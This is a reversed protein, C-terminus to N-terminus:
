QFKTSHKQVWEVINMVSKIHGPNAEQISVLLMHGNALPVTVRILKEYVALAYKVKGIKSSLEDRFRWNELARKISKKTDEITLLHTVNNRRSNWLIKGKEDCILAFRAKPIGEMVMSVLKGEDDMMEVNSSMTIDLELYSLLTKINKILV